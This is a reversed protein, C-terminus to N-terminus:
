RGLEREVRKALVGIDRIKGDLDDCRGRLRTAADQAARMQELVAKREDAIGDRARVIEAQAALFQDYLPNSGEPGYFGERIETVWARPVGLDDAVRQDTWPTLYGGDSYCEVLKLNILRREDLTPARPTEARPPAEAVLELTKGNAPMTIVEECTARAPRDARRHIPCADKRPSAGVSWGEKEFHVIIAHPPRPVGGRKLAFYAVAGCTACTVRYALCPAGGRDIRETQFDRPKM